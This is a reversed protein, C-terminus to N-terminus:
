SFMMFYTFQRASFAMPKGLGGAFPAARESFYKPLDDLLNTNVGTSRASYLIYGDHLLLLTQITELIYVAYVLSKSYIRDRPFAMYYLVVPLIILSPMPFAMSNSVSKLPYHVM